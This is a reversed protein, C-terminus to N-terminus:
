FSVQSGKRIYLQSRLKWKLNSKFNCLRNSWKVKHQHQHNWLFLQFMTMPSQMELHCDTKSSEARRILHIFLLFYLMLMFFNSVLVLCFILKATQFYLAKISFSKKSLHLYELGLNTHGGWSLKCLNGKKVIFQFFM